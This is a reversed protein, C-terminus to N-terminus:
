EGVTVLEGKAYALIEELEGVTVSCQAIMNRKIAKAFGRSLVDVIPKFTRIQLTVARGEKSCSRRGYVVLENTNDRELDKHERIQAHPKAAGLAAIENDREAYPRKDM